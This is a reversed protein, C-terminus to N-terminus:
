KLKMPFLLYIHWLHFYFLQLQHLLNEIHIVLHCCLGAEHCNLYCVRICMNLSQNWYHELSMVVSSYREITRKREPLLVWHWLYEYFFTEQKRHSTNTEYFPVCIPSLQKTSSSPTWVSTRFHSLCCDFSKYAAPKSASTFRHSLQILTPPPDTSFYINKWNRIDCTKRKIDM